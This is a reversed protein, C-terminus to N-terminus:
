RRIQRHELPEADALGEEIQGPWRDRAYTQERARADQRGGAERRRPHAGRRTWTGGRTRPRDGNPCGAERRPVALRRETRARAAVDSADLGPVHWRRIVREPAILSTGTYVVTSGGYVRGFALTMTGEATLFGGADQYLAAAMELERGTFEHPLLNTRWLQYLAPM